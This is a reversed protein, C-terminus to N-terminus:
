LLMEIKIFHNRVEIVSMDSYVRAQTELMKKTKPNVYQVITLNSSIRKNEGM